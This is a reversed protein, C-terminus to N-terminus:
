FSATRSCRFRNWMCKSQRGGSSGRRAAAVPMVGVFPLDGEPTAGPSFFYIGKGDPTLQLVPRGNANLTSVPEGPSHYRDQSSGEYLTTAKALRASPDFAVMAIKRDSWRWETALALHDNGWEVGRFRMPSELLTM